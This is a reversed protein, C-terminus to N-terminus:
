ALEAIRKSTEHDEYATTLRLLNIVNIQWGYNVVPCILWGIYVGWVLNRCYEPWAEEFSPPRSVGESGLRDLYFRLLDREHERREAISLATTITYNVDHMHHSRCMLQWDTLGGSGDPLFYTNGLHMDGEVLTQPLTQQHNHLAIMEARLEPGTVRMRQLMEAKHQVTDIENQIWPTVTHLHLDALGGELHTQVWSLDGGALLRPSEWFHAHLKAQTALIARVQDVAVPMTVNQFIAGRENMDELLIAFTGSVEDFHAGFARPTEIDLEPRIRDYFNVENAYLPKILDHVGLNLKIVLRKPLDTTRPGAYAVDVVVRGTTSVFQEGFQKQEVIQYDSFQVPDPARSALKNLYDLTIGDASKPHSSSTM